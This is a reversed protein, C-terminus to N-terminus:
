SAARKYAGDTGATLRKLIAQSLEQQVSFIDGDLMRNYAESWLHYGDKTDILQATVRLKRDCERVSGELVAAVNLKDGITRIDDARDRYQFVSTSSVVRWQNTQAIANIVEETLGDCFYRHDSQRSVDSFPLVAISNPRRELNSRVPALAAPGAPAKQQILPVYSRPAFSILVQDERGETEYYERLKSRLRGAEVRVIPDVRPDMAEGKDFVEVGILYEKLSAAEGALLREVTFKLFRSMRESRTFIPSALMRDLQARAADESIGVVLHNERDDSM